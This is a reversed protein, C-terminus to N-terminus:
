LGKTARQFPTLQDSCDAEFGVSPLASFAICLTEQAEALLQM